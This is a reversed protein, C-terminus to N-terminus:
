ELRHNARPRKLVGLLNDSVSVCVCVTGCNCCVVVFHVDKMLLEYVM